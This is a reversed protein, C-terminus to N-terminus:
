CDLYKQWIFRSLPSSDDANRFIVNKKGVINIDDILLGDNTSIPLESMAFLTNGNVAFYQFSTSPPLDTLTTEDLGNRHIGDQHYQIAQILLSNSKPFIKLIMNQKQCVRHEFLVFMLYEAAEAVRQSAPHFEKKKIINM